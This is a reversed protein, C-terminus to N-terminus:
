ADVERPLRANRARSGRSGFVRWSGRHLHSAYEGFQCSIGGCETCRAKSYLVRLEPYRGRVRHYVSTVLGPGTSELVDDDDSIPRGSRRVMEDLVDNWWPHGARSGFMYNAIRSRNRHGLDIAERESLLKEQALVVDDRCLEDLSRHCRIDLDLYFGGELSLVVVRFLDIRQITARYGDYIPLLDPRARSVIMRCALDDYFRHDWGPHLSKLRLRDRRSEVTLGKTASTQHTIKPIAM